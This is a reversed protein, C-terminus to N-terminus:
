TPTEKFPPVGLVGRTGGNLSVGMYSGPNKCCGVTGWSTPPNRPNNGPSTTQYSEWRSHDCWDPWQFPRPNPMKPSPFRPRIPYPTTTCFPKIKTTNRKKPNPYFTKSIPVPTTEIIQCSKNLIIELKILSIHNSKGNRSQSYKQKFATHRFSLLHYVGVVEVWCVATGSEPIRQHDM